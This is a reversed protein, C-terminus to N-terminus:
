SDMDQEQNGFGDTEFYDQVTIGLGDCLKAITFVGPNKTVGNVINMITTIPVASKYALTYYSMNKESCLEKVRRSLVDKRRM